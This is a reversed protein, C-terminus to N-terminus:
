DNLTIEISEKFLEIMRGLEDRSATLPPWLYLVEGLPRVFLGLGMAHGAINRALDGGGSEQKFACMAITGLTKTYEVCPYEAIDEFEKGLVQAAPKAQGV